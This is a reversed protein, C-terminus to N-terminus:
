NRTGAGELDQFKQSVIERWHEQSSKIVLNGFGVYKRVKLNWMSKIKQIGVFLCDAPSDLQEAGRKWIKERLRHQFRKGCVTWFTTKFKKKDINLSCISLLHFLLEYLGLCTLYYQLPKSDYGYTGILAIGIHTLRHHLAEREGSDVASNRLFARLSCLQSIIWQMAYSVVGLPKDRWSGWMCCAGELLQVCIKKKKNKWM